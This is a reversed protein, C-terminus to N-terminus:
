ILQYVFFRGKGLDQQLLKAGLIQNDDAVILNDQLSFYHAYEDGRKVDIEPLKGERFACTAFGGNGIYLNNNLFLIERIMLGPDLLLLLNVITPRIYFILKQYLNGKYQLLWGLTWIVWWQM